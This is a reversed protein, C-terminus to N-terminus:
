SLSAVLDELREIENVSLYRHPAYEHMKELDFIKRWKFHSFRDEQTFFIEPRFNPFETELRYKLCIVAEQDSICDQTNTYSFDLGIMFGTRCSTCLFSGNLLHKYIFSEPDILSVLTCMVKRGCCDATYVRLM